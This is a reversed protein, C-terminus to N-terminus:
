FLERYLKKSPFFDSSSVTEKIKLCARLANTSSDFSMTTM